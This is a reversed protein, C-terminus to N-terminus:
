LDIAEGAIKGTSICSLVDAAELRIEMLKDADNMWFIDDNKRERASRCEDKCEAENTSEEPFLQTTCTCMEGALMCTNQM